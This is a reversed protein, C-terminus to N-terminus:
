VQCPTMAHIQFAMENYQIGSAHAEHFVNLTLLLDLEIYVKTEHM